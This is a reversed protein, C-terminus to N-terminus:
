VENQAFIMLHKIDVFIDGDKTVFSVLRKYLDSANLHRQFIEKKKDENNVTNNLWNMISQSKLIFEKVRLIKFSKFLLLIESKTPYHIDRGILWDYEESIEDEFPIVMAFLFGGGRFLCRKIEAFVAKPDNLYHLVNRMVILDFINEKFPLFHADAVIKSIRKDLNKMMEESIDIGFIRRSKSILAEAVVGTGVGVDLVSKYSNHPLLSLLSNLFSLDRVWNTKDYYKSRFSWYDKSNILCKRDNENKHLLNVGKETVV